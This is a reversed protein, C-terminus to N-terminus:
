SQGGPPPSNGKITPWLNNVQVRAESLGTTEALQERM